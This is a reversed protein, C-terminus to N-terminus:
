QNRGTLITALVRTDEIIYKLIRQVMHVVVFINPLSKGTQKTDREEEKPNDQMQSTSCSQNSQFLLMM